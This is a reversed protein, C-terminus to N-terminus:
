KRPRLALSWWADTIRLRSRSVASDIRPFTMDRPHCSRGTMPGTNSHILRCTGQYSVHGPRQLYVRPVVCRAAWLEQLADQPDELRAALTIPPWTRQVWPKGAAVLARSSGPCTGTSGCCCRVLSPASM